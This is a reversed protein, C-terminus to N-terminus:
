AGVALAAIKYKNYTQNRKINKFSQEGTGGCSFCTGSYASVGNVSAGWRYQGTGKCKCCEGPKHNPQSLDYM